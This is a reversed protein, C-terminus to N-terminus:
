LARARTPCRHDVIQELPRPGAAGYCPACARASCLERGDRTAHNPAVCVQLQLWQHM